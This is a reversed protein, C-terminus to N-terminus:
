DFHANKRQAKKGKRSQSFILVSRGKAGKESQPKALIDAYYTKNSVVIM